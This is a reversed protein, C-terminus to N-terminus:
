SSGGQTPATINIQGMQMSGPGTLKETQAFQRSTDAQKYKKLLPEPASGNAILKCYLIFKLM